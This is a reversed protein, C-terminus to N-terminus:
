GLRRRRLRDAVIAVLNALGDERDEVIRTRGARYRGGIGVRELHHLRHRRDSDAIDRQLHAIAILGELLQDGAARRLRDRRDVEAVDRADCKHAIGVAVKDFEALAWRSSSPRRSRSQPGYSLSLGRSFAYRAAASM